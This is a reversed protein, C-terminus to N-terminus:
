TLFTAAVKEKAPAAEEASKINTMGSDTCGDRMHLLYSPTVLKM